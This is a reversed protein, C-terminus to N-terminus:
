YFRQGTVKKRIRKPLQAVETYSKPKRMKKIMRSQIGLERMLRYILYHSVPNNLKKKFVKDKLQQRRVM